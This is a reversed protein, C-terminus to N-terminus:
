FFFHQAVAFASHCNAVFSASLGAVPNEVLRLVERPIAVFKAFWLALPERCELLAAVLVLAADLWHFPEMQLALPVSDLLKALRQALVQREPLSHWLQDAM